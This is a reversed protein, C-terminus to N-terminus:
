PWARTLVQLSALAPPTILAWCCAMCQVRLTCQSCTPFAHVPNCTLIFVAGPAAASLPRRQLPITRCLSYQQRREEKPHSMQVVGIVKNHVLPATKMVSQEHHPGWVRQVSSLDRASAAEKALGSAGM